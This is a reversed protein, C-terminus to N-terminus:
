KRTRRKNTSGKVRGRTKSPAKEDSSKNVDSTNANSSRTARTSESTTSPSNVVDIMRDSVSSASRRISSMEVGSSMTPLAAVRDDGNLYGKIVEIHSVLDVFTENTPMIQMTKQQQVKLNNFAHWLGVVETNVKELEQRVLNVINWADMASKSLEQYKSLLSAFFASHTPHGQISM